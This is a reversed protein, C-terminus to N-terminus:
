IQWALPYNVIPIFSVGVAEAEGRADVTMEKLAAMQQAHGDSQWVSVHVMSGERSAGAYYGILGDLRKIAPILYDGTAHTMREVEEFREMAFNGRSVRVVSGPPIAASSM